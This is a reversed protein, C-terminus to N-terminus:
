LFRELETGRLEKMIAERISADLELRLVLVQALANGSVVELAGKGM